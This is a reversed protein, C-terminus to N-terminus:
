QEEVGGGFQKPSLNYFFTETRPITDLIELVVPEGTHNSSAQIM